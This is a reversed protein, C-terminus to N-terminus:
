WPYDKRIEWGDKRILAGCYWRAYFGHTNDKSCAYGSRNVGGDDESVKDAMLVERSSANGGWFDIEVRGDPRTQRGQFVFIDRGVRNPGSVGNLDAFLWVYGTDHTFISLITGNKLIIPNKYIRGLQAAGQQQFQARILPRLKNYTTLTAGSLYPLYYKKLFETEKDPDGDPFEWGDMSGNDIESLKVMNQLQAYVKKLGVVTQRKQWAATLNPITMAAVVGIIGLTILVEALTFASRM